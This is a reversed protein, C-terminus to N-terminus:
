AYGLQRARRIDLLPQARTRPLCHKCISVGGRHQCWRASVSRRCWDCPIWPIWPIWPGPGDGPFVWPRPPAHGMTHCWVVTLASRM